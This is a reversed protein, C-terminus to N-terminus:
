ILGMGTIFSFYVLNYSNMLRQGMVDLPDISDVSLRAMDSEIVFQLM